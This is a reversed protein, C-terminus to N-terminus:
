IIEFNFIDDFLIKVGNIEIYGNFSITYQKSGDSNLYRKYYGDLYYKINVNEGAEYNIMNSSIKEILDESIDNRAIRENEYEKIRLADQLGKLSDFPLFIRARDSNSMKGM